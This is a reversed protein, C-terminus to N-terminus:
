NHTLQDLTRRFRDADNARGMKTYLDIITEILWKVDGHSMGQTKKREEYSALLQPEAL